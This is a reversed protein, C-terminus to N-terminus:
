NKIGRDSWETWMDGKQMFADGYNYKQANNMAAEKELKSKTYIWFNHLYHKQLLTSDAKWGFLRWLNPVKKQTSMIFLVINKNPVEKMFNVKEVPANM